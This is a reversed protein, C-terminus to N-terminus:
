RQLLVNRYLLSIATTLASDLIEQPSLLQLQKCSHVMERLVHDCSFSTHMREHEGLYVLANAVSHIREELPLEYNTAHEIM